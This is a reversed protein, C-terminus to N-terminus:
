VQVVEREMLLIVSSIVNGDCIAAAKLDGVGTGM